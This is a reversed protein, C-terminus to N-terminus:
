FQRVASNVFSSYPKGGYLVVEPPWEQRRSGNVALPCKETGCSNYWAFSPVAKGAAKHIASNLDTWVYQFKTGGGVSMGVSILEYSLVYVSKM